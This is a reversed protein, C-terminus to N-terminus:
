DMAMIGNGRHGTLQLCFFKGGCEAAQIRSFAAGLHPARAQWVRWAKFACTGCVRIAPPDARIFRIRQKAGTSFLVPLLPRIQASRKYIGRAARRLFLACVCRIGAALGPAAGPSAAAPAFFACVGHLFCKVRLTLQTLSLSCFFNEPLFTPTCRSAGSQEASKQRRSCGGPFSVIKHSSDKYPQKYKNQGRQGHAANPFVASAAFAGAPAGATGARAAAAAPLM